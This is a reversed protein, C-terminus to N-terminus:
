MLPRSPLLQHLSQPMKTLITHQPSQKPMFQTRVLSCPPSLRTSPQQTGSSSELDKVHPTTQCNCSIREMPKSCGVMMNLQISYVARAGTTGTDCLM